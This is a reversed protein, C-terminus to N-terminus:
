GGTQTGGARDEKPVDTVPEEPAAGGGWGTQPVHGGINQGSRDSAVAGPVGPGHMQSKQYWSGIQDLNLNAHAFTMAELKNAARGITAQAASTGMAIYKAMQGATVSPYLQDPLDEFYSRQQGPASDKLSVIENMSPPRGHLAATLPALKDLAQLYDEPSMTAKGEAQLKQNAGKFEQWFAGAEQATAHGGFKSQTALKVATAYEGVTLQPNQPHPQANHWDAVVKEVDIPGETPASQIQQLIMRPDAGQANYIAQLHSKNAAYFVNYVMKQEASIDISM